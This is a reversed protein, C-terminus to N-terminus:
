PEPGARAQQQETMATTWAIQKQEQEIQEKEQVEMVAQVEQLRLESATSKDLHIFVGQSESAM